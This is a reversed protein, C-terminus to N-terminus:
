YQYSNKGLSANFDVAFSFIVRTTIIVIYQAFIASITESTRGTVFHHQFLLFVFDDIPFVKM